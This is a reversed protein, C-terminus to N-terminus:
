KGKRSRSTSEPGCTGCNGCKWAHLVLLAAAVIVIWRTASTGFIGPWISVVLIVVGFITEAWKCNCNFM